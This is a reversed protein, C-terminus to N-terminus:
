NVSSYSIIVELDADQFITQYFDLIQKSINMTNCNIILSTLCRLFYGHDSLNRELVLVISFDNIPNSLSSILKRKDRFTIIEMMANHSIKNNTPTHFLNEMIQFLPSLLLQQQDSNSSLLVYSISLLLHIIM